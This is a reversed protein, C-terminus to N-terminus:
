SMILEPMLMNNRDNKICILRFVFMDDQFNWGLRFMNKKKQCEVIIKLHDRVKYM